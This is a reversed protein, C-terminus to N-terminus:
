GGLDEETELRAMKSFSVLASARALLRLTM